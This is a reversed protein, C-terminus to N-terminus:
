LGRVIDLVREVDDGDVDRHTVFRLTHESISGVLVGAESLRRQLGEASVPLGDGHVLVM